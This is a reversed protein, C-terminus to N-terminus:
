KDLNAVFNLPEACIKWIYFNSNEITTDVDLNVFIQELILAWVNNNSCRPPNKGQSSILVKTQLIHPMKYKILTVLHQFWETMKKRRTEKIQTNQWTHM